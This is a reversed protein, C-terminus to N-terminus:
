RPTAGEQTIIRDPRSSRPSVFARWPDELAMLVSRSYRAFDRCLYNVVFSSCVTYYRLIIHQSSETQIVVREKAKLSIAHITSVIRSNRLIPWTSESIWINNSIHFLTHLQPIHRRTTEYYFKVVICRKMDCFVFIRWPWKLSLRLNSSSPTTVIVKFYRKVVGRRRSTSPM